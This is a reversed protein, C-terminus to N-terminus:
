QAGFPRNLSFMLLSQRTTNTNNTTNITNNINSVESVRASLRLQLRGITYDLRNEWSRSEQQRPGALVPLPMDGYIRLESVFNLRPVGFARQHRYSLDASSNITTTVPTDPTTTAVPTNYYANPM